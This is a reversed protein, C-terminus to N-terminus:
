LERVQFWSIVPVSVRHHSALAKDIRVSQHTANLDGVTKEILRELTKRVKVQKVPIERTLAIGVDGIFKRLAHRFHKRIIVFSNSQNGNDHSRPL